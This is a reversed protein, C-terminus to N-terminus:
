PRVGESELEGEVGNHGALPAMCIHAMRELPKKCDPCFGLRGPKVTAQQM